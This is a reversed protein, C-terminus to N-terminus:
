QIYEFHLTRMRFSGKLTERVEDEDVGTQESTDIVFQDFKSSMPFEDLQKDNM